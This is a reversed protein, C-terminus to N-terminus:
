RCKEKLELELEVVRAEAKEARERMERFRRTGERRKESRQHELDMRKRMALLEPTDWETNNM